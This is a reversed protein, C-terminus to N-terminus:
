LEGAFAFPQVGAAAQGALKAIAQAALDLAALQIEDLAIRGAARGLAAPQAVELGDKGQAALDDVGVLRAFVLDEGVLFDAAHDRGRTSSASFDTVSCM